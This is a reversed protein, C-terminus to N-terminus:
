HQFNLHVAVAAGIAVAAGGYKLSLLSFNGWFDDLFYFIDFFPLHELQQSFFLDDGCLRKIIVYHTLGSILLGASILFIGVTFNGLAFEYSLGGLSLKFLTNLSFLSSGEHAPADFPTSVIESCLARVADFQPVLAFPHWSEEGEM